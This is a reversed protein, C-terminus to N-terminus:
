GEMTERGPPMYNVEWEPDSKEAPESWLSTAPTLYGTSVSQNLRGNETDAFGILPVHKYDSLEDSRSRQARNLALLASVASNVGLFRVWARDQVLHVDRLLGFQSMDKSIKAAMAESDLSSGWTSIPLGHLFIRRNAGLMMAFKRYLKLPTDRGIEDTILADKPFPSDTELRKVFERKEQSSGFILELTNHRSLVCSELTFNLTAKHLKKLSLTSSPDFNTVHITRSSSDTSLSKIYPPLDELVIDPVGLPLHFVRGEMGHGDYQSAAVYCDHFSSFWVKYTKKPTFELKKEKAVMVSGFRMFYQKVDAASRPEDPIFYLSRSYGEWVACTVDSSPTRRANLHKVVLKQPATFGEEQLFNICREASKVDFFVLQLTHKNFYANQLPGLHHAGLMVQNYLHATFGPAEIEIARTPTESYKCLSKSPPSRQPENDNNRRRLSTHLHSHHSLFSPFQRSLRPLTRRSNTCLALM